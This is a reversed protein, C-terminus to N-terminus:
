QKFCDDYNIITEKSLEYKQLRLAGCRVCRSVRTDHKRYEFKDETFLYEIFRFVHNCDKM